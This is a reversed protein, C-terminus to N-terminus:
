PSEDMQYFVRYIESSLVVNGRSLYLYQLCLHLVEQTSSYEKLLNGDLDYQYVKKSKSSANEDKYPTMDKSEFSWLFGYASKRRGSCVDTIHHRKSSGYHRAASM